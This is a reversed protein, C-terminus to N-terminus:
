EESKSVTVRLYGDQIHKRELSVVDQRRLTTLLSIGMAVQVGAPAKAYVKWFDALTLRERPSVPRERRLLRDRDFPNTDTMVLNERLVFTWM